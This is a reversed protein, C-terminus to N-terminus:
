PIRIPAANHNVVSQSWWMLDERANASLKVQHNYSQKMADPFGVLPLVRNILAQLQRHFLPAVTIAQKAANTMGIFATIQRISVATEKLLHSTEQRIKRM